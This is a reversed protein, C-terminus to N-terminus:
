VSEPAPLRASAPELKALLYQPQELCHLMTVGPRTRHRISISALQEAYRKQQWSAIESRPLERIRRRLLGSRILLKRDTLCYFVQEWELRAKVLQGPGILFSAVILPLPILMLTRSSGDEAGQLALMQWISGVLFLLLAIVAPKWNRFTYCRPAPRGQWLIREEPQVYAQWDM